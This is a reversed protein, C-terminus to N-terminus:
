NFEEEESLGSLGQPGEMLEDVLGQVHSEVKGMPHMGTLNGGEVRCWFQEPLASRPGGSYVIGDRM